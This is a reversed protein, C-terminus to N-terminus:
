GILENRALKDVAYSLYLGCCKSCISFRNCLCFKRFKRAIDSNIVKYFDDYFANGAIIDRYGPCFIVDGNSHLRVFYFPFLCKDRSFSYSHELFHREIQRTSKAERPTISVYPLRFRFSFKNKIGSIAQAVGKAEFSSFDCRLAKWSDSASVQFEERLQREYDRGARDTVFWRLGYNINLLGLEKAAKYARIIDSSVIYESICFNMSLLPMLGSEELCCEKLNALNEKIRQFTGKGRIRDNTDQDGDISVIYMANKLRGLKPAYRNLLTANTTFITDRETEIIYDLLEDMYKYCFPEGGHISLLFNSSEISQLFTILKKIPADSVADKHSSYYGRKGWQNCMKCLLNCRETPLIQVIVPFPMTLSGSNFAERFHRLWFKNRRRHRSHMRNFHLLDKIRYDNLIDM